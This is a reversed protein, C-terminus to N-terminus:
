SRGTVYAAAEGISWSVLLLLLAPSTRLFIGLTRHKRIQLRLLRLWLLLPLGPTLLALLVRRLAGTERARTYGFLRGWHFRERLVSPLRLDARMQDVIIDPTLVLSVGDGTLAWHLTTEHYRHQWLHRSSELVERQYSVNVDTVYRVVGASLPLQYRGFDCFYVAWNLWSDVGNEVAGGIVADWRDHADVVKRAWNRRPVGRDELMAIIDGTAASLGASRRRDFLEHQGAPHNPPRNTKLAGLDLFRVKPHEQILRAPLKVSDDFPVLVELEPGYEQAELAQICAELAPAGDVITVVVSLRIEDDRADRASSAAVKSADTM